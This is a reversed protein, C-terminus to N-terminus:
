DRRNNGQRNRSRRPGRSSEELAEEPWTGSFVEVAPGTMIVSGSVGERSELWQIELDGGPLHVTAARDLRDELVGAVVVACAGTGCAQTLGAGREWTRASVDWRSRLMAAHVNVRKPFWEHYEVMPGIRELPFAELSDVFFVAHPNGMSVCTMKLHEGAITIPFKVCRDGPVAVPIDAPHLIPVGMDVRVQETRGSRLLATVRLIGRGTEVALDCTQPSGKVLDHDVAYKAACRVGNGCMESQSGDANYMVMRLDAPAGPSPPCILILGDAGVGRHRDSMVRALHAPDVGDLNQEFCNIYVYDNGLGHMKTFRIM